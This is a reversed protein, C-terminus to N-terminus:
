PEPHKGYGKKKRPKVARAPVSGPTTKLLRDAAAEWGGEIRLREPEPRPKPKRNDSPNGM